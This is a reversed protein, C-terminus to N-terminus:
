VCFGCGQKILFGCYKSLAKVNTVTKYAETIKHFFPHPLRLGYLLRVVRRLWCHSFGSRRQWLEEEGRGVERSNELAGLANAADSLNTVTNSVRKDSNRRADQPFLSVWGAPTGPCPQASAAAAAPEPARSPRQGEREAAASM